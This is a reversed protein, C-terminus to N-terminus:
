PQPEQWGQEYYREWVQAWPRGFFDIHGEEGPLIQTPRGDPGNVIKGLVEINRLSAQGWWRMLGEPYCFAANWQPSDTVAEHYGMRVMRTQYEPTPLSLM